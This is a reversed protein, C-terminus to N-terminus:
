KAAVPADIRVRENMLAAFPAGPPAESVSHVHGLPGASLPSPAGRGRLADAGLM